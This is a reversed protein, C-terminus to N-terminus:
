TPSISPQSCWTSGQELRIWLIHVLTCHALWHKSFYDRGFLMCASAGNMQIKFINIYGKYVETELTQLCQCRFSFKYSRQKIRLCYTVTTWGITTM